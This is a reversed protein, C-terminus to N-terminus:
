APLDGSLKGRIAALVEAPVMGVQTIEADSIEEFVEPMPLSAPKPVTPKAPGAPPRPAPPVVVPQPLSAPAPIPAPIPASIPVPIPQSTTALPSIAPLAPEEPRVRSSRQLVLISVGFIALILLIVLALLLVLSM